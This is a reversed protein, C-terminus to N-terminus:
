DNESQGVEKGVWEQYEKSGLSVVQAIIEPLEYPHIEKLRAEVKEYLSVTTKLTLTFETSETIQGDWRYYSTIPGSLQACGILRDELLLKSIKEGDNKHEFTTSIIVISHM